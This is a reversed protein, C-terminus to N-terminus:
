CPVKKVGANALPCSGEECTQAGAEFCEGLADKFRFAPIQLRKKADPGEVKCDVEIMEGETCAGGGQQPTPCLVDSRYSCGYRSAYFAPQTRFWGEKGKPRVDGPAPCAVQTPPPPNCSVGPPCSVHHSFSCRPPNLSLYDKAGISMSSKERRKVGDSWGAGQRNPASAVPAASAPAQASAEPVDVAPPNHTHQQPPQQPESACASSVAVTAVFSRRLARSM